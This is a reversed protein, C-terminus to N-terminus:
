DKYLFSQFSSFSAVCTDRYIYILYCWIQMNIVNAVNIILYCWIKMNFVNAVNIILYCWIQMNFVNAVNIILYCWIQVDFINAVNILLYCWVIYLQMIIANSLADIFIQVLDNLCHYFNFLLLFFFVNILKECLLAMCLNFLFLLLFDM